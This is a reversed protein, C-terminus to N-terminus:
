AIKGNEEFLYENAQLTDYVAQDSTLDEFADRLESYIKRCFDLRMEEIQKELNLLLDKDSQKEVFFYDIETYRTREHSYLNYFGNKEISISFDDQLEVIRAKQKDTFDLNKLLRSIDFSKCDFCAGDGQSYFGSFHIEPDSFGVQELKEKWDSIVFEYWDDSDVNIYRNNEIAKEKVEELEYVTKLIQKTM